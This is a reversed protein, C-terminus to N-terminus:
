SLGVVFDMTINEWKRKPVLLPQLLEVRRQHEAKVQQGTLCRSVFKAIKDKVDNWWNNGHLNNHMKTNDPHMNYRSQHAESM